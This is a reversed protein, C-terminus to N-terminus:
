NNVYYNQCEGSICLIQVQIQFHFSKPDIAAVTFRKENHGVTDTELSFSKSIELLGFVLFYM